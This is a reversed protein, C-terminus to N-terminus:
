GREGRSPWRPPLAPPERGKLTESPLEDFLTKYSQSFDGFHWFGFRCAIASVTTERPDCQKLERRVEHLRLKKLYSMPSIGLTSRFAYQLSRESAGTARCLDIMRVPQEQQMRVFDEAVRVVDRARQVKPAVARQTTVASRLGDVLLTLAEDVVAGEVGRQQSESLLSLRRSWARAAWTRLRKTVGPEQRTVTVGDPEVLAEGVLAQFYGRLLDPDAFVCTCRFGLDSTCADFDLVPPLILLQWANIAAGAFHGVRDHDFFTGVYRQTRPRSRIKIPQNVSLRLIKVEGLDLVAQRSSFPGGSLQVLELQSGFLSGDWDAPDTIVQRKTIMAM